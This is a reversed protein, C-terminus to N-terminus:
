SVASGELQGAPMHRRVWLKAAKHEQETVVDLRDLVASLGAIARGVVVRVGVLDELKRDDFQDRQSLDNELTALVNHATRLVSIEDMLTGVVSRHPTSNETTM